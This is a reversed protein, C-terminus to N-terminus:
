QLGRAVPLTGVTPANTRGTVTATGTGAAPHGTPAPAAFGRDAMLLGDPGLAEFPERALVSEATSETAVPGATQEFLAKM